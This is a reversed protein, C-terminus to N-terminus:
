VTARTCELISRGNTWEVVALAVLLFTERHGTAQGLAPDVPASALNLHDRIGRGAQGRAM